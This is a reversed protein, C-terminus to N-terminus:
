DPLVVPDDVGPCSSILTRLMARQLDVSSPGVGTATVHQVGLHTAILLHTFTELDVGDPPRRGEAALLVGIGEQLDQRFRTRHLRVREALEPTRLTHLLLETRLVFWARDSTRVAILAGLAREFPQSGDGVEVVRRRIAAGTADIRREWVAVLLEELSRFNSYFAGRSFGARTCVAEITSGQFGTDSFVEYAADLLRRRTDERTSTPM